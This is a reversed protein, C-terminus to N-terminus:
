QESILRLLNRNKTLGSQIDRTMIQTMSLNFRLISFIEPENLLYNVIRDRELESYPVDSYVYSEPPRGILRLHQRLLDNSWRDRTLVIGNISRYYDDLESRIAFDDIVDLKGTSLLDRYTVDHSFNAASGGTLSAFAFDGDLGSDSQLILKDLLNQAANRSLMYRESQFSLQEYGIDLDSSIRQLYNSKQQRTSLDERWSDAALAVAVGVFVVVFEAALQSYNINVKM